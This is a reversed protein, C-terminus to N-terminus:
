LKSASPKVIGDIFELDSIPDKRARAENREMTLLKDRKGMGGVDIVLYIARMTQEARKYAELQKKYGSVVKPNSSLKV